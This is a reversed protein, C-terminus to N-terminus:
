WDVLRLGVGVAPNGEIDPIFMPTIALKQEQQEPQCDAWITFGVDLAGIALAPGIILWGMPASKDPVLDYILFGLGVAVHVGGTIYGGLRWILSPREEEIADKLNGITFVFTAVEFAAGAGIGLIVVGDTFVDGPNAARANHSMMLLTCALLVRAFLSLKM